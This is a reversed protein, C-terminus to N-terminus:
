LREVGHEECNVADDDASSYRTCFAALQQWVQQHLDPEVWRRRSADSGFDILVFRRHDSRGILVEVSRFGPQQVIARRFRECFSKALRAADPEAVVLEVLHM